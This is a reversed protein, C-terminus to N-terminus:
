KLLGLLRRVVAKMSQCRYPSWKDASQASRNARVVYKGSIKNAVNALERMPVLWATEIRTAGKDLLVALLYAYRDQKLAVERVQFHVINGRQQSAGKKKLTVTRAKVQLPVAAGSVKDHVLIDIGDDDAVPSFPSLRGDSGLMLGNSVLNEAIAGIQTTTPGSM